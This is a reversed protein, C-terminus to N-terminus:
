KFEVVKPKKAVLQLLLPMTAPSVIPWVIAWAFIQPNVRMATQHILMLEAFLSIWSFLRAVRERRAKLGETSIELGGAIGELMLCGFRHAEGIVWVNVALLFSSSCGLLPAVGQVLLVRSLVNLASVYVPRARLGCLAPMEETLRPSTALLGYIPEICVCYAVFGLKDQISDYDCIEEMGSSGRLWSPMCVLAQYVSASGVILWAAMCALHGFSMYLHTPLAEALREMELQEKTKQITPDADEYLKRQRLGGGFGNTFAELM